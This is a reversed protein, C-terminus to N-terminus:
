SVLTARKADHHRVLQEIVANFQQSKHSWTERQLRQRASQQEGSIAPHSARQCVTTAFEQPTNVIDAADTWELVAPVRSAVVPKGTALYEKFKLPQMMRTAPLDAYPMILVDAREAYRPLEHHAVPGTWRIRPLAAIRGDVDQQPGVLVITGDFQAHLTEIWQADLRADILGWFLAIPGDIDPLVSSAAPEAGQAPPANARLNWHDLHVGHTLLTAERGLCGIQDVLRQSVAFIADAKAILQNEMSRLAERDLGPWESLDDVCYYIWADVALKDMLPAVIPITTIGIRTPRDVASSHIPIRRGLARPMIQRNLWREAPTRFSPWMVPALVKPQRMPAHPSPAESPGVEHHSTKAAQSPRPMVWERIKGVGRKLTYWDFQPLRTGITNVWSVDYRDLLGGILHQCSSPHRGWDDSFVLLEATQDDNM